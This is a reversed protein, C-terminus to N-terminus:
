FAALWAALQKADSPQFRMRLQVFPGAASYGAASFDDDEFGTVNFGANVWITETLSYGLSPGFSYQMTAAPLTMLASARLGLDFQESIDYRLEAGTLTTFSQYDHEGFVDNAYKLGLQLSLQLDPDPELNVITNAVVKWTGHEVGSKQEAQPDGEYAFDLRGLVLPGNNPRYAVGLQLEATTADVGADPMEHLLRVRNAFSLNDYPALYHGIALNWREDSGVRAEARGTFTGLDTDLATGLSIATFEDGQAGPADPL